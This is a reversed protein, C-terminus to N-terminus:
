GHYVIDNEIYHILEQLDEDEFNVTGEEMTMYRLEDLFNEMEVLKLFLPLQEVSAEDLKRISRYGEVITVFLADMLMKQKDTDAEYMVWGTAARWACALEYMYWCYGSDDFDFLTINGDEYDINYNGDGFDGHVLGYNMPSKDLKELKSILNNFKGRVVTMESPLYLEMLEKLYDVIHHRTHEYTPSYTQSVKHIQGLIRGCNFHHNSVPVDKIYNYGHHSLQEGAAVRFITYCYTHDNYMIICVERGDKSTYPTAVSVGNEDLHRIFDVESLLDEMNRDPRTTVRVYGEGVTSSMHFVTNVCGEHGGKQELSVEELGYAEIVSQELAQRFYVTNM